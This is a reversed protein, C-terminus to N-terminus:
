IFSPVPGRFVVWVVFYHSCLFGLGELNSEALDASVVRVVLVKEHVSASSKERRQKM